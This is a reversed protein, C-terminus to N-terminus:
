GLLIQTATSNKISQVKAKAVYEAVLGLLDTFPIDIEVRESDGDKRVRVASRPVFLTVDGTYDDAVRFVGDRGKYQAM